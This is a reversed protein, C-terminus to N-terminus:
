CQRKKEARINEHNQGIQKVAVEHDINRKMSMINYCILMLWYSCWGVFHDVGVLMVVPNELIICIILMM